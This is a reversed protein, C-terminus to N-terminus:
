KKILKYKAIPFNNELILILYMSGPLDDVPISTKSQKLDTKKVLNGQLDKILCVLGESNRHQVEVEFFSTMPNPYVSCRVMIGSFEQFGPMNQIEYPQQVGELLSGGEGTQLHYAVQGVSWTVSGDTGSANASASLVSQQAQLTNHGTCIYLFAVPILHQIKMLM